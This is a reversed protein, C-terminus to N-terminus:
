PKLPKELRTKLSLTVNRVFAGALGEKNSKHKSFHYFELCSRLEFQCKRNQADDCM